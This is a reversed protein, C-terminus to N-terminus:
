KLADLWEVIEEVHCPKSFRPAELLPEPLRMTAESYGTLFAFPIGRHLLAEALAQSTRGRGLNFDLLAARPTASDLVKFAQADSSCTVVPGQQHEELAMETEIAIFAEDEVLLIANEPKM